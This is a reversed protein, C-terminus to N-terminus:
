TYEMHVYEMRVVVKLKIHINSHIHSSSKCQLNIKKMVQGGKLDNAKFKLYIFM